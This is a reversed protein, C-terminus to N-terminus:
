GDTSLRECVIEMFARRGGIQAPGGVIRYLVGAELVQMSSDLGEIYRMRYRVQQRGVALGQRVAESRSPLADVREAWASAFTTWTYTAAGYTADQAQVRQQITLLRDTNINM